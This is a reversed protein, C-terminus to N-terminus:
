GSRRPLVGAMILQQGVALMGLAHPATIGTFTVQVDGDARQILVVTGVASGDLAMDALGESVGVLATRVEERTAWPRKGDESM